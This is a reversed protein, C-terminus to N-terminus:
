EKNEVVLKTAKGDKVVAPFYGQKEREKIARYYGLAEIVVREPSLGTLDTLGNVVSLVKEDVIIATKLTLTDRRPTPVTEESM